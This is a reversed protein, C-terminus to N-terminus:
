CNKGRKEAPFAHIYERLRERSFHPSCAPKGQFYPDAVPRPPQGCATPRNQLSTTALAARRAGSQFVADQPAQEPAESFIAPFPQLSRRPRRRQGDPTRREASGWTHKARAGACAPSLPTSTAFAAILFFGMVAFRAFFRTKFTTVLGKLMITSIQRTQRIPRITTGSRSITFFVTVSACLSSRRM